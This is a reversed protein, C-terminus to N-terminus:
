LWVVDSTSFTLSGLGETTLVDHALTVDATDQDVRGSTGRLWLESPFESAASLATDTLVPVKEIVRHTRGDAAKVVVEVWGPVADDVWRTATGRVIVEAM